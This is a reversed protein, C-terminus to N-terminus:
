RRSALSLEQYCAIMNRYIVLRAETLLWEGFLVTVGLNLLLLAILYTFNHELAMFAQGIAASVGLVFLGGSVLWSGGNEVGGNVSSAGAEGIFGGVKCENWAGLTIIIEDNVSDLELQHLPLAGRLQLIRRNREMACWSVYIVFGMLVLWAPCWWTGYTIWVGLPVLIVMSVLVMRTLQYSVNLLAIFKVSCEKSLSFLVRLSLVTQAILLAFIVLFYATSSLEKNLSWLVSPILSAQAFWIAVFPFGDRYVWSDYITDGDKYHFCYGLGSLRVM